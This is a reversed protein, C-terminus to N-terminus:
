NAYECCLVMIENRRISPCLLTIDADYSLADIYASGIYSWLGTTRLIVFLKEIYLLSFLLYFEAKSLEMKLYSTNPNIFVWAVCAKQRIYSDFIVYRFIYSVKNELLISFLEGCHVRDFAKSTDILCSYVVSRKNMYHNIAEIYVATCLVTTHNKLDM